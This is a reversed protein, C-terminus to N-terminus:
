FKDPLWGSRYQEAMYRRAAAKQAREGVAGAVAEAPVSLLRGGFLSVGLLYAARRGRRDALAGYFPMSLTQTGIYATFVWPYLGAGGFEGVVAPMAPGVVMAELSALSTGVLLAFTVWRRAASSIQSPSTDSHSSM